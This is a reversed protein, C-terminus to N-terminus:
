ARVNILSAVFVLPPCLVSTQLVEVVNDVRLYHNRFRQEIRDPTYTVRVISIYTSGRISEYLNMRCPYTAKM